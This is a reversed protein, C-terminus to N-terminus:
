ICEISEIITLYIDKKKTATILQELTKKSNVVDLNGDRNIDSFNSGVAICGLIQNAFNASHIEVYDRNITGDFLYTDGKSPSKYYSLKYKQGGGIIRSINNKNHKWALEITKCEFIKELGKFLILTGLTQFESDEIRYLVGHINM